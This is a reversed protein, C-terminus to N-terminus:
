EVTKERYTAEVVVRGDERRVDRETAQEGAYSELREADVLDADAYVLAAKADLVEEEVDFSLHHVVGKADEYLGEEFELVEPGDGEEPEMGEDETFQGLVVDGSGATRLLWEVDDDVEHYASRDGADTEVARELADRPDPEGGDEGDGSAQLLHDEGVAVAAPGTFRDEGDTYYVTYDGVEGERQLGFEEVDAAVAAADFSGSLVVVDGALVISEIPLEDPDDAAEYDVLRALGVSGLGFGATLAVGFFGVLPNRVLAPVADDDTGDDPDNGDPDEDDSGGGDPDDGETGDEVAPTPTDLEEDDLEYFLSTDVAVVRAPEDAPASEPEGFWSAYAPVDGEGGFSGATPLRDTCGALGLAVVGGAVNLWERRQLGTM